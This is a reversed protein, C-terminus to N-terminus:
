RHLTYLVIGMLNAVKNVNYMKEREKEKREREREREREEGKTCITSLLDLSLAHSEGWCVDLVPKVDVMIVAHLLQLM